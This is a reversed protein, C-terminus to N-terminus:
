KVTSIRWKLIGARGLAKLAILFVPGVAVGIAGFLQLGVYIAMLTALPHLGMNEAMIKTEMVQRVVLVVAFLISLKAGFMTNGSVFAWGIWPLFITSPGLVPILDFIAIVLAMLLAYQSGTLYLGLLSIIFTIFILTLQARVYGSLAGAIDKAVGLSKAGWPEPLVEMWAAVIARRDKAVLYTAIISVIILIIWGPVSTVLTIIFNLLKNTFGQLKELLSQLNYQSGAVQEDIYTIVGPPLNFYYTLAKEEMNKIVAQVNNVYVPLYSSLHVLEAILRTIVLVLVALVGGLVLLMAAGVAAPRPFKVKRQLFRIAPELLVALFGAAVFPLIYPIIYIIALYMMVMGVVILVLNKLLQQM